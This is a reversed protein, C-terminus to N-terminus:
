TASLRPSAFLWDEVLVFDLDELKDLMELAESLTNCIPAGKTNFSTNILAALGTHRGVAQLLAHVWPEDRKSVSQHRATGDLHALGPFRRQMDQNVIPAFSMYPSLQKNGFVQELAEEAIMPAAPRYWARAKLRNMRAKMGESDPVALLSRHGLARPGFEQRGRM